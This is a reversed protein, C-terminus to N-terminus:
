CFGFILYLIMILMGLRKNYGVRAILLLFLTTLEFKKISENLKKKYESYWLLQFEKYEWTYETLSGPCLFNCEM